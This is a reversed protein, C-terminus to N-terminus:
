KENEREREKQHKEEAEIRKQDYEHMYQKFEDLTVDDPIPFDVEYVIFDGRMADQYKLYFGALATFATVVVVAVSIITACFRFRRKKRANEIENAPIRGLLSEAFAKPEGVESVLTSFPTDPNDDLCANVARSTLKMLRARNEKSCVLHRKVARLYRKADKYSAM